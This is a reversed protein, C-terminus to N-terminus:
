GEAWRPEHYFSKANLGGERNPESPQDLKWNDRQAQENSMMENGKKDPVKGLEPHLVNAM